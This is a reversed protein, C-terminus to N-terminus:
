RGASVVRGDEYKVAHVPHQLAVIWVIILVGVFFAITGYIARKM